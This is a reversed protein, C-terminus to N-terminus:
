FSNFFFRIGPPQSLKFDSTKKPPFATINNSVDTEYVFLTRLLDSFTLM